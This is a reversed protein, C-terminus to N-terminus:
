KIKKIYLSIDFRIPEMDVFNIKVNCNRGLNKWLPRIKKTAPSASYDQCPRATALERVVDSESTWQSASPGESCVYKEREGRKVAAKQYTYM